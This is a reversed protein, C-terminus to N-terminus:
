TKWKTKENKRGNGLNLNRLPSKPWVEGLLHLTLHEGIILVMLGFLQAFLLVGGEIFEDPNNQAHLDKLGDLSGDAKVQVVSLGPVGHSALALARSLLVQFGVTGMLTTMRPRLKECVDFAGPMDSGSPKGQQAEHAILRKVFARIKPTPEKM